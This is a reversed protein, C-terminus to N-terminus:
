LFAWFLGLEMRFDLRSDTEIKRKLTGNERFQIDDKDTVRGFGFGGEFRLGRIERISQCIGITLGLRNSINDKREYEGYFLPDIKYVGKRYQYYSGAFFSMGKNLRKPSLSFHYHYYISYGNVRNRSEKGEAHVVGATDQIDDSQDVGTLHSFDFGLHHRNLIKIGTGIVSSTVHGNGLFWALSVAKLELTHHRFENGFIKTSDYKYSEKQAFTNLGTIVLIFTLLLKM